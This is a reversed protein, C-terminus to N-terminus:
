MSAVIERRYTKQKKKNEIKYTHARQFLFELAM